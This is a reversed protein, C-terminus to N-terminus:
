SINQQWVISNFEVDFGAFKWMDDEVVAKLVSLGRVPQAADGFTAKWIVAISDCGCVPVEEVEVPPSDPQALQAAIFADKSPFTVSGLAKGSLTNISDSTDAFTSALYTEGDEETFESVLRVYAAVLDDTEESTLCTADDRRTIPAKPVALAMSSGLLTSLFVAALLM